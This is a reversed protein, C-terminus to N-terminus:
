EGYLCEFCWCLNCPNLGKAQAAILTSAAGNKARPCARDSHYASNEIWVPTIAPYGGHGSGGSQSKPTAPVAGQVPRKAIALNVKPKDALEKYEDATIEDILDSRIFGEIKHEEVEIQFWLVQKTDLIEDIIRVATGTIPLTTVITAKGDPKKRVNIGKINTKGCRPEEQLENGETRSPLAMTEVRVM